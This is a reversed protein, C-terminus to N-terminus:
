NKLLVNKKSYSALLYSSEQNEQYAETARHQAMLLELRTISAELQRRTKELKANLYNLPVIAVIAVALGFIVALLCQSIGGVLMDEKGALDGGPIVGFVHMMGVVTGLLGLLPGLTVATDLIVLGRHYRDLEASASEIMAENFATQRHQLGKSLVRVIMDSSNEFEPDIEEMRDQEVLQFIRSVLAPDQRRKEAILFFLREIVVSLTVVSLALIPWMIFGGKLFLHIMGKM